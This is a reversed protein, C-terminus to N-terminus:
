LAHTHDHTEVFADSQRVVMIGRGVDVSAVTTRTAPILVEGRDSHAVFVHGGPTEVIDDLTGLVRGGEELVTLGILEFEYYHGEPLPPTQGRPIKLLAGRFVAAEEPTSFSELGLVYSDPGGRRVRTVATSLTRGTPSELTVAKLGEFRGPVDSLSEVRVEGKVGFPKVIKGITIQESVDRM